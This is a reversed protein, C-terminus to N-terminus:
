RDAAMERKRALELEALEYSQDIRAEISGILGSAGSGAAILLWPWPVHLGLLGDAVGWLALGVWFSMCWMCSWIYAVTFGLAGWRKGGILEGTRLSLLGFTDIFKARIRATPPFEDKVLLRTTRWTALIMGFWFLYIM